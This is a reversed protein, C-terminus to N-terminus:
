KQFVSSINKSIAFNGLNFLIGIATILLVIFAAKKKSINGVKALGIILLVIQWIKFINIGSLATSLYTSEQAQLFPVTHAVLIYISILISGIAQPLYALSYVAVTDKYDNEGNFLRTLFWYIFSIFAIIIAAVLLGMFILMPASYTTEYQQRVTDLYQQPYKIKQLKEIANQILLSKQTSEAYGYIIISLVIIIFKILFTPKEIYQEFVKEPNIFFYKVRETISLKKVELNEEM